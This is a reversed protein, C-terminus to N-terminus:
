YKVRRDCGGAKDADVSYGHTHSPHFLVRPVFHSQGCIFQPASYARMTLNLCTSYGMCDSQCNAGQARHSIKEKSSRVARTPEVTM